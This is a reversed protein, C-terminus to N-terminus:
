STCTLCVKHYMGDRCLAYKELCTRWDGHGPECWWEDTVQFIFDFFIPYSTVQLLM